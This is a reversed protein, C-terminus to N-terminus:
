ANARRLKKSEDASNTAHMRRWALGELALELILPTVQMRCALAEDAFREKQEDNVSLNFRHKKIDARDAYM